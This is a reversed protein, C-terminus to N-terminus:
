VYEVCFEAVAYREPHSRIDDAEEPALYTYVVPCEQVIEADDIITGYEGLITFRNDLLSAACCLASTEVTDFPWGCERHLPDSDSGYNVLDLIAGSFLLSIRKNWLGAEQIVFLPDDKGTTLVFSDEKLAVGSSTLYDELIGEIKHFLSMSFYDKEADDPTFGLTPLSIMMKM